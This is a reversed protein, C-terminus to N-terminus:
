AFGKKFINSNFYNVKKKFILDILSVFNYIWATNKMRM